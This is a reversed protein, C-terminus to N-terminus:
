PDLRRGRRSRTPVSRARKGNTWVTPQPRAIAPTGAPEVTWHPSEGISTPIERGNNMALALSLLEEALLRADQPSLKPLAKLFSRRLRDMRVSGTPVAQFHRELIEFAISRTVRVGGRALRIAEERAVVPVRRRALVFLATPQFRVLCDLHAFAKAARMYNSATSQSWHFEAKLWPQFHERGLRDRVFQLRLGIQV